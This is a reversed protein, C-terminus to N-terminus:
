AIPPARPSASRHRSQGSASPATISASEAFRLRHSFSTTWNSGISNSAPRRNKTLGVTVATVPLHSLAAHGRLDSSRLSANGLRQQQLGLASAKAGAFGLLALAVAGLIAKSKKLRKRM